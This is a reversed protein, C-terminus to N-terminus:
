KSGSPLKLDHVIVNREGRRWSLTNLVYSLKNTIIDTPTM